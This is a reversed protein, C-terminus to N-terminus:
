RFFILSNSVLRSDIMGLKTLALTIKFNLLEKKSCFLKEENHLTKIKFKNM